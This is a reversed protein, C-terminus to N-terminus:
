TSDPIVAVEVSARAHLCYHACSRATCDRVRWRCKHVLSIQVLLAFVVHCWSLAPGLMRLVMGYQLVMVLATGPMVLAPAAAHGGPDSVMLTPCWTTPRCHSMHSMHRGYTHTHLPYTDMNCCMLLIHHPTAHFKSPITTHHPTTHHPHPHPHPRLVFPSIRHLSFIFVWCFVCVCVCVHVCVWVCECVCACVCVCVCM